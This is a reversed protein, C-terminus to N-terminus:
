KSPPQQMTQQMPMRKFYAAVGPRTLYYVILIDVILWFLDSYRAAAIGLLGSLIGIVAVIIYLWRAWNKGTWLGWNILLVILAVVLVFVGAVVLALGLVSSTLGSLGLQDTISTIFSAGAILTIGIILAALGELFGLIALITIGTPRPIAGLDVM